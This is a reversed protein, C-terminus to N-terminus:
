KMKFDFQSLVFPQVFMPGCFLVYRDARIKIYAYTFGTLPFEHVFCNDLYATYASVKLLFLRDCLGPWCSFKWEFPISAPQIKITQGDPRRSLTLTGILM